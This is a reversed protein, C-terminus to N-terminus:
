AIRPSRTKLVILITALSLVVTVLHFLLNFFHLTIFPSNQEPSLIPDSSPPLQCTINPELIVAYIPGTANEYHSCTMTKSCYILTNNPVINDDIINDIPLKNYDKYVFVQFVDHSKVVHIANKGKSGDDPLWKCFLKKECTYSFSSAVKVVTANKLLYNYHRRSVQLLPPLPEYLLIFAVYRVEDGNAALLLAICLLARQM